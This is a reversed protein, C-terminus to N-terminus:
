VFLKERYISISNEFEASNRINEETTMYTPTENKFVRDDWQVKLSRSMGRM